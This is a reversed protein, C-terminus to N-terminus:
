VHARGIKPAVTQLYTVAARPYLAIFLLDCSPLTSEDLVADSIGDLAAFGLTAPDIDYTYVTHGDAKYAKAMSGGILGLGCIGVIM